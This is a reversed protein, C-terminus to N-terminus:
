AAGFFVQWIKGGGLIGPISFKVGLFLEEIMGMAQFGSNVGQERNFSIVKTGSFQPPPGPSSTPYLHAISLPFLRGVTKIRLCNMRKGHNYQYQEQTTIGM